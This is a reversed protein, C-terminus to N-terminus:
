IISELSCRMIYMINIFELQELNQIKQTKLYIANIELLNFIIYYHIPIKKYM